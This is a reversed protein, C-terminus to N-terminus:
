SRCSTWARRACGAASPRSRTPGASSSTSATATRAPASQSIERIYARHAEDDTDVNMTRFKLVTFERMNLGLRSQRFFVPGPSDRKIRWAIYVFLPALCVSCRGLRGRRDRAQLQPFRADLPRLCASSRCARSATSTSRRASSSSSALCSTSRSTSTPWTACSRRPREPPTMRSRSWWRDVEPERRARAADDPAGLITLDDLDNRRSKPASDM